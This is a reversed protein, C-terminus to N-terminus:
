VTINNLKVCAPGIMACYVAVGIFHCCAYFAASFNFFTAVSLFAFELFHFYAALSVFFSTDSLDVDWILSFSHFVLFSFCVSLLVCCSTLTLATSCSAMVRMISMM